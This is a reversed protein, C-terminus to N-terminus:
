DHRFCDKAALSDSPRVVASLFKQYSSQSRGSQSRWVGDSTHRFRAFSFPLPTCPPLTHSPFPPLYLSLSPHDDRHAPIKNTSSKEIVVSM